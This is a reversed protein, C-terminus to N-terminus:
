QDTEKNAVEWVALADARMKLWDPDRHTTVPECLVSIVREAAELKRRTSLAYAELDSLRSFRSADAEVTNSNNLMKAVHVLKSGQGAQHIYGNTHDLRGPTGVSRDAELQEWDIETM